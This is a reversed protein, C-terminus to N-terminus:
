FIRPPGGERPFSGGAKKKIKWGVGGGEVVVTGGGGGGGLVTWAM